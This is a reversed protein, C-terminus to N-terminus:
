IGLTPRQSTLLYTGKKNLCDSKGFFEDNYKRVERSADIINM